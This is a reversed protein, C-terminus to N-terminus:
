HTFTNFLILIKIETYKSPIKTEKIVWDINEISLGVFLMYQKKGRSKLEKSLTNNLSYIIHDESHIPLIFSKKIIEEIQLYSIERMLMYKYISTIGKSAKQKLKIEQERSINWGTFCQIPKSSCKKHTYYGNNLKQCIPCRPLSHPIKKLCNSCIDEGVRSCFVCQKPFINNILLM